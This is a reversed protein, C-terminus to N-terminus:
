ISRSSITPGKTKPDAIPQEYQSLPTHRDKGPLATRVTRVETHWSEGRSGNKVLTAPLLMFLGGLGTRAAWM